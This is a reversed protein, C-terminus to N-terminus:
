PLDHIWSAARGRARRLRANLVAFNPRMNRQSSGAIAGPPATRPPRARAMSVPRAPSITVLSNSAVHWGCTGSRCAPHGDLAGLRGVLVHAHGGAVEALEDVVVDGEIRGRRQLPQVVRVRQFVEAGRAEVEIAKRGRGPRGAGQVVASRPRPLNMRPAFRPMAPMSRGSRCRVASPVRQDAVLAVVFLITPLDLRQEEFEVVADVVLDRRLEAGVLLVRVEVLRLADHAPAVLPDHQVVEQGLHSGAM